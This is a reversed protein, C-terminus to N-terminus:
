YGITIYNFAVNGNCGAQFTSMTTNPWNINLSTTNSNYTNALKATAILYTNEYTIPLTVTVWGASSKSGSGWCM